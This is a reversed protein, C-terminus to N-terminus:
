LFLSDMHNTEICGKKATKWLRLNSEFGLYRHSLAKKDTLGAHTKDSLSLSVDNSARKCTVVFSAAVNTISTATLATSLREKNCRALWALQDDVRQMWSKAQLTMKSIILGRIRRTFSCPADLLFSCSPARLFVYFCSPSRLLVAICSSLRLAENMNSLNNLNM